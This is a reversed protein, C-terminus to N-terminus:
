HYDECKDAVNTKCTKQIALAPYNVAPGGGENRNRGEKGKKRGKGGGLFFSSQCQCAITSRPAALIVDSFPLAM